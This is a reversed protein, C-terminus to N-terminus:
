SLVMAYGVPDTTINHTKINVCFRFAVSDGVPFLAPTFSTVEGSSGNEENNVKCDGRGYNKISTINFTMEAGSTSWVFKGGYLLSDSPGSASKLGSGGGACKSVSFASTTLKLKTCTLEGAASAGSATIAGLALAAVLTLGLTRLRRM